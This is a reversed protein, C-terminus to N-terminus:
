PSKWDHNWAQKMKDTLEKVVTPNAAALNKKEYPDNKLNFLEPDKADGILPTILKWDGSRVWRHTLNVAPQDLVKASHLYIEGFITDRELKGKGMATDLFSIGAMSAPVAQGCSKLITPAIDITSILDPYIGAKTKGPWKITLPTRVGHDYATNKSRTGFMSIKQTSEAQVWGNDNVFMVITNDTLKRDDLYKLLEGITEDTWECMAYYAAVKPDRGDKLYKDLLRKPPDHPLHPMMPAYWIFWPDNSAEIFSYIPKMTKRGIALGEDGHRGKTTMGESFGGNSFHGEWFKGTQLSRYDADKLLRPITLSNKLFSLM